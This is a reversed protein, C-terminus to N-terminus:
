KEDCSSEDWKSCGFIMTADFDSWNGEYPIKKYNSFMYPPSSEKSVNIFGFNKKIINLDKNCIERGQLNMWFLRSDYENALDKGSDVMSITFSKIGKSHLHDNINKRNAGSLVHGAGVILIGASCEKRQILEEMKNAMYMDRKNFWEVENTKGEIFPFEVHNDIAFIKMKLKKAEYVPLYDVIFAAPSSGKYSTEPTLTEIENIGGFFGNFHTPDREVFFCDIDSRYNKLENFINPYFKSSKDFHTEGLIIIKANSIAGAKIIQDIPKSNLLRDKLYDEKLACLKSKDYEMWNNIFSLSSSPLIERSTLDICDSSTSSEVRGIFISTFLFLLQIFLGM